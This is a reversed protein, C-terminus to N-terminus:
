EVNLVYSHMPLEATPIGTACGCVFSLFLAILLLNFHTRQMHSSSKRRIAENHGCQTIPVTRPTSLSLPTSAGCDMKVLSISAPQSNPAARCALAHVVFRAGM